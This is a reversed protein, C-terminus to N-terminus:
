RLKIFFGTRRHNNPRMRNYPHTTSLSTKSAYLSLEDSEVRLCCIYMSDLMGDSQLGFHLKARGM